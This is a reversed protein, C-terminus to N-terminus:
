RLEWDGSRSQCATRQTEEEIGGFKIAVTFDRCARGQFRYSRQPTLRYGIRSVPNVWNLTAHDPTSALGRGGCFRDTADMGRGIRQGAIVDLLTGAESAKEADASGLMRAVARANCRGSKVGFDASGGAAFQRYGTLSQRRDHAAEPERYEVEEVTSPRPVPAAGGGTASLVAGLLLWPRM